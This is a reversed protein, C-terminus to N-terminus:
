KAAKTTAIQPVAPTAEAQMAALKVNRAHRTEDLYTGSTEEGVKALNELTKAFSDFAAFFTAFSLFMQALMRGM